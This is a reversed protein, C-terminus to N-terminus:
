CSHSWIKLLDSGTVLWVFSVVLLGCHTNECIHQVSHLASSGLLIFVIKYLMVSEVPLSRALKSM